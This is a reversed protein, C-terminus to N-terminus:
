AFLYVKAGLLDRTERAFEEVCSSHKPNLYLLYVERGARSIERLSNLVSRLVVPGFPNYLYVALNDCPFTYRAVDEHVIEAPSGFRRINERATEVLERAFEVGIIRKFSFRSAILLVRGKGAGLDVFTFEEYRIPLSELLERCVEVPSAHYGVGTSEHPSNIDLDFLSKAATTDVAYEVDFSDPRGDIELRRKIRRLVERLGENRLVQAIKRIARFLHRVERSPSKSLM